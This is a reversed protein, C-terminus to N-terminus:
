NIQNACEHIKFAMEKMFNIRNNQNNYLRAPQVFDTFKHQCHQYYQLLEM